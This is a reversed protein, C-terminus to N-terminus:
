NFFTARLTEADYGRWSRRGMAAGTCQRTGDDRTFGMTGDPLTKTM